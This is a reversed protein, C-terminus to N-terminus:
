SKLNVSGMDMNDNCLSQYLKLCEKDELNLAEEVTDSCKRLINEIRSGKELKRLYNKSYEKIKIEDHKIVCVKKHRTLQSKQTFSKNRLDCTNDCEEKVSCKLQHKSLLDTRHFSKNCIKCLYKANKHTVMHRTMNRKLSFTKSCITCTFQEM